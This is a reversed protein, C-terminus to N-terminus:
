MLLAVAALIVALAIFFVLYMLVWGVWLFVTGVTDLAIAPGVGLRLFLLVALCVVAVAAWGRIRQKLRKGDTDRSAAYTVVYALAGSASAAANVGPQFYDSVLKLQFYADFWPGIAGLITGLSWKAYFAIPNQAM